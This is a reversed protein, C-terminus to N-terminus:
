HPCIKVVIVSSLIFIIDAESGHMSSKFYVYFSSIFFNKENVNKHLSEEFSPSIELLFLLDFKHVIKPAAM